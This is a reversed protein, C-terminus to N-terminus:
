APVSDPTDAQLLRTLDAAPMPRAFHYGQAYRYGLQHLRTAQDATEVGEAVAQLRLGGAIQILATAIVAQDSQTTVEDVFSKDVKLVDVPCTRLLGLSSHGTGFDDLAVTVGLGHLARVSDLAVGGDFVATETIEVVLRGADLGTEALIAAVTAPFAPERLQRASVNVSIRHVAHGDRPQWQTAQRCAERLIWEGLPVILGNREAVPIFVDPPVFGREPDQWRVLAEAAVTRGAPLEVIPQYVLYLEGEDIARRLQAGLRAYEHADHDLSPEYRALRHKGREKAAYMAVDARRLLERPERTDVADTLGVSAQVLLEHGGAHVPRHLAEAVLQVAADAQWSSAPAIVLAFEDGGLRGVLTPPGTVGTLRQAVAVLLDDGVHHGLRDNVTKFDDLDILALHVTEPAFRALADDLHQQLLRRNALQTLDDRTAQQALQDRAERLERLSHDVRALLRSNEAFAVIQRIVVIATLAVAGGVLYLPPSGTWEILLLANTAAVAAYPLVSWGRRPPSPPVAVGAARRQRDAALALLLCATPVSLQTGHVYPLGSLAPALAGTAASAATALGLIRLATRDLLETGVATIKVFALMAVCSLVIVVGLALVTGFALRWQEYERFSFHWAFIAATVMVAGTDLIYQLRNSRSRRAGPLRLLAWFVSLVTGIYFVITRPSVRQSPADPGALADFAGSVSGVALLTVGFALSRWFRRAPEALQPMRATRWAPWVTVLAIVQVAIWAVLPARWWGLLAGALWAFVGVTLVAVLSLDPTLRFPRVTGEGRGAM